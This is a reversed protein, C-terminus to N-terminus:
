HKKPYTDKANHSLGLPFHIHISLHGFIDEVLEYQGIYTQTLQAQDYEEIKLKSAVLKGTSM